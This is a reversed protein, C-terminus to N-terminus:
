HSPEGAARRVLGLVFWLGIFLTATTAGTVTVTTKRFLLDTVRARVPQVRAHPMRM